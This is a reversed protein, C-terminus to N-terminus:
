NKGRKESRMKTYEDLIEKVKDWRQSIMCVSLAAVNLGEPPDNLLITFQSVMINFFLEAEKKKSM